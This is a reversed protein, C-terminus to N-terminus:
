RLISQGDVGAMKLLPLVDSGRNKPQRIIRTGNDSTHKASAAPAVKRFLSPMIPLCACIISVHVEITSWYGVPVYDWTVNQTDAFKVLSTLRLISVIVVFFGLGFMLLIHIKRQCPMVLKALGPLPLILITIDLLISIGASVWGLANVNICRAPVTGDWRTWVAQIPICQFISLLVFVTGYVINSAMIVYVISRFTPQPFIRLYLCLISLRTMTLSCLYLLEDIYYIYLIYTIDDFPLSWLDKGLGRDALVVALASLPIVFG